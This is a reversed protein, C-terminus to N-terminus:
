LCTISKMSCGEFVPHDLGTTKSIWGMAALIRANPAWQIHGDFSDHSRYPFKWVSASCMFAKVYKEFPAAAEHGVIYVCLFQGTHRWHAGILNIWGEHGWGCLKCWIIFHQPQGTWYNESVKGAFIIFDFSCSTWIPSYRIDNCLSAIGFILLWLHHWSLVQCLFSHKGTDWVLCLLHCLLLLCKPCM